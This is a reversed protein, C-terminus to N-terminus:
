SFHSRRFCHSRHLAILVLTRRVVIGDCVVVPDVRVVHVVICSVLSSTRVLSQTTCMTRQAHVYLASIWVRSSVACRMPELESRMECEDMTM